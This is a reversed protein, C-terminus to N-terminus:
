SESTAGPQLLFKSDHLTMSVIQVNKVIFPETLISNHKHIFSRMILGHSFFGLKQSPFRQCQELIYNEFRHLAEWKSEGGPFRTHFLQPDNQTWDKWIDIGFRLQIEEHTLGEADGLFVERLDKSTQIMAPMQLSPKNLLQTALEATQLARSLDSSFYKDLQLNRLDNQISLAQQTGNANLPIDSHGQLRRLVNWDTEGHRILFIQQMCGLKPPDM